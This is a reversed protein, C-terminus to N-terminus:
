SLLVTWRTSERAHRDEKPGLRVNLRPSFVARVVACRRRMVRRHSLTVYIPTRNSDKMVTADGEHEDSEQEQRRQM